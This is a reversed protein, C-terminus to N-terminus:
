TSREDERTATETTAARVTSTELAAPPGAADGSNGTVMTVGAPLTVTAFFGRRM